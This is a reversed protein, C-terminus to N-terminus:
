ISYDPTLVSHPMRKNETCNAHLYCIRFGKKKYTNEGLEVSQNINNYSFSQIVEDTSSCIVITKM